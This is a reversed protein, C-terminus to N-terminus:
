EGGLFAATQDWLFELHNLLQHGDEVLHLRVWPRSAAFREVTSPKVIEDNRGQVILTPIRNTVEPDYTRADEIFAWDLHQPVGLAYHFIERTGTDKWRKLAELGLDEEFGAVLDLAPALLVLRDIAAGPRATAAHRAEAVQLAVFAGLSSGILAVRSPPLVDLLREVQRVMRTVTLTGFDPQNLDPCHYAAGIGRAREAFFRAKSSQPSSAFGHLYVLARAGM